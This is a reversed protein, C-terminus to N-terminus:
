YKRYGLAYEAVLVKQLETTGEGVTAARAEQYLRGIRFESSFGYGGHIQMANESAKILTQSALLKAMSAERSIRKYGADLLQGARYVMLRSAEINAVMEAIMEQILQFRGIEQGFQVRQRAYSLAEDLCAQAGGLARAGVSFRGVDLSAAMIKFGQGEDGLRNEVPVVCDEFTLEAIGTRKLVRLPMAKASFGKFGREVIFLTIGKHRLSRDVTALVLFTEAVTGHSIFCKAGNIVYGGNKRTATTQISALDSGGSPETLCASALKEARALPALYKRKQEDTGYRILGTGVLSNAVSVVSVCARCARALEENLIGYSMYDMASGGYEEPILAGLIGLEAMKKVIDMPYRSEREYQEVKPKIEREAFDRVMNRTAVQQASLGFNLPDYNVAM